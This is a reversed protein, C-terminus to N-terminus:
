PNYDVFFSFPGGTQAGVYTGNFVGSPELALRYTAGAVLAVAPIPSVYWTGDAGRPVTITSGQAVLSPGNGGSVLYLRPTFTQANGAGRAFFEFDTATGTVSQAFDSSIEQTSAVLESTDGSAVQGLQAVPPGSAIPGIPTSSASATGKSNSANVKFRLRSGVDGVTPRYTPGTAGSIAVCNAGAGDCRDWEVTIAPPPSANWGGDLGTLIRGETAVGIASPAVDDHPAAPPQAGPVLLTFPTSEAVDGPCSALDAGDSNLVQHDDQYDTVTANVTVHIVPVVGSDAHCAEGFLDSTDFDFSGTTTLVLHEGAPLVIPLDVTGLGYWLEFFNPSSGGGFSVSAGDITEPSASTNTIEVAGADYGAAGNAPGHTLCCQAPAGVYVTAPSGSWPSLGQSGDAYGVAVAVAPAAPEGANVTLNDMNIYNSSGAPADFWVKLTHPSSSLNAGLQLVSWSSWDPTAPFAQDALWVSGDLEIKRHAPGSGASYRLALTSPGSASFSFTVFQGQSNWCCLYPPDVAGPWVSEQPLNTTSKNAPVVVQCASAVVSIILVAGLMAVRGRM